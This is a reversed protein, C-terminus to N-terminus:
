FHLRVGLSQGEPQFSTVISATVDAGLRRARNLNVVSWGVFSGIMAGAIVDSLYHQNDNIRAYGVTGAVGFALAGAWWHERYTNAVVSAIAFAQTTHGSPFSYNGSFPTFDDNGGDTEQDPRSRGFAFKLTPVIIGSAIISAELGDRALALPRDGGGILGIGASIGLVGLSLATGLQNALHAMRDGQENRNEQSENRIDKDITVMSVGIAAVGVGLASWEVVGWAGPATLIDGTDYWTDSAFDRVATWPGDDAAHMPMAAFLCFAGALGLRATMVSLPVHRVSHHMLSSSAHLICPLNGIAAAQGALAM